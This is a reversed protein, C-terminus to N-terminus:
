RFCTFIIVATILSILSTAYGATYLQKLTSLYTTQFFSFFFLRLSFYNVDRVFLIDLKGTEVSKYKM